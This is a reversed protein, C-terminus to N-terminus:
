FRATTSGGPSRPASHQRILGARDDVPDGLRTWFWDLRRRTTAIYVQTFNTRRLTGAIYGRSAPELMGLIASSSLPDIWVQASAWPPWIWPVTTRALPPRDLSRRRRLRRHGVWFAWKATEPTSRRGTRQRREDDFFIGKARTGM